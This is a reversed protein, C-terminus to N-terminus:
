NEGVKPEITIEYIGEKEVRKMLIDEINKLQDDSVDITIRTSKDTRLYQPQINYGDFKIIM